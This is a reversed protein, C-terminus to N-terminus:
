RLSAACMTGATGTRYGTQSGGNIPGKWASSSGTGTFSTCVNGASGGCDIYLNTAPDTKAPSIATGSVNITWPVNSQVSYNLVTSGSATTSGPAVTGFHVASGGTFTFTASAAVTFDLTANSTSSAAYAPAALLGVVLATAGLVGILKRM